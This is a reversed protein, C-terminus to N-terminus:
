RPAVGHIGCETRELGPWRGARGEGAVTCPECGISDFGKDHLANYPIRGAELYAEVEALSWDCLPSCKWIGHQHDWGLRSTGRRSVAQARRLGSIWIDADALARRMPEVKRIQCCRSPDSEWLRQGHERAQEALSPGRHTRLDLDYRRVLEDRIEHTEGFLLGTDVTVVPVRAGIRGYLLDILVSSERQFSTALRVKDIPVLALVARLTSEASWRDARGAVVELAAAGSPPTRQEPTSRSM